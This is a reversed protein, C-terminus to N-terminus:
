SYWSCSIVRKLSFESKQIHQLYVDCILDCIHQATLSSPAPTCRVSQVVSGCGGGHNGTTGGTVLIGLWSLGPGRQVKASVLISGVHVTETQNVPYMRFADTPTCLVHM